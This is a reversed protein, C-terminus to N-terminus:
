LRGHENYSYYGKVTIILHDIMTIDFVRCAEHLKRTINDDPISPKLNGSPHNHCLAIAQANNLLAEKLIQKSDFVSATATGQTVRRLSMVENKKNLYIAWIEEHPLNGIKNKMLRYIDEPGTIRTLEEIDENNYRRVLELVAEIQLAKVEGIGEFKILENHSLRELHHLSDKNARMLNRTIETIPKGHLGSRVILALLDAVSLTSCGYKMAREQPRDDELFEKITINRNQSEKNDGSLEQEFARKM